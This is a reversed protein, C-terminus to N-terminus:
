KHAITKIKRPESAYEWWQAKVCALERIQFLWQGGRWWVILSAM